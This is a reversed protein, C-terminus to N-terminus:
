RQERDHTFTAPGLLLDIVCPDIAPMSIDMAHDVGHQLRDEAALLIQQRIAAKREGIQVHRGYRADQRYELDAQVTVRIGVLPHLAAQRAIGPAADHLPRSQGRRNRQAEDIRNRCESNKRPSSAYSSSNPLRLLANYSRNASFGSWRTSRRTAWEAMRSCRRPPLVSPRVGPSFSRRMQM